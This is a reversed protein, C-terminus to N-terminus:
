NILIKVSVTKEFPMTPILESIHTYLSTNQKDAEGDRVIRHSESSFGKDGAQLRLDIPKSSM